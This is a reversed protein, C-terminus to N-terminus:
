ELMISYYIKYCLFSKSLLIIFCLLIAVLANTSLGAPFLFAEASCTQIYGKGDCACVQIILTETSSQVPYDNDFIIIPLTYASIKYRNYSNRKTLISATNDPILFLICFNHFM